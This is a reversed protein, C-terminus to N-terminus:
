KSVLYKLSNSILRRYNENEFAYKDHGGMLYVIKSNNYKLTWGIIEACDPNKTKLLPVVDSNVTINAYGEDRIMFNKMGSTVPHETDQIEVLLDLDHKYRMDRISDPPNSMTYGGGRIKFFTEWDQYSALSHHLFLFSMGNKTLDIYAAKEKESVSQWSDYFVLISYKTAKGTSIFLNADPQSLTDFRYDNLSEFLEYFQTTDFDHGGTILLVGPKPNIGTVCSLTFCLLLLSGFAYVIRKKLIVQM